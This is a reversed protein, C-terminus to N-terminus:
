RVEASATGTFTARVEDDDDGFPTESILSGTVTIPDLTEITGDFKKVDLTVDGAGRLLLRSSSPLRVWVGDYLPGGARASLAFTEFQSWAGAGSAGTKRWWGNQLAEGDNVVIAVTDADHALDAALTAADAFVLDTRILKALLLDMAMRQIPGGAVQVFVFAGAPVASAQPVHDPNITQLEDSV